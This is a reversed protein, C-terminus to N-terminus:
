NEFTYSAVVGNKFNFTIGKVTWKSPTKLLYALDQVSAKNYDIKDKLISTVYIWSKLLDGEAGAGGIV